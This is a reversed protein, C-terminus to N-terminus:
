YFCMKLFYKLIQNRKFFVCFKFCVNIYKTEVTFGGTFGDEFGKDSSELQAEEM